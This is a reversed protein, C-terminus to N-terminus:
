ICMLGEVEADALWWRGPRGFDVWGDKLRWWVPESPAQKNGKELLAKGSPADAAHEKSRGWLWADEAPDRPRPFAIFITKDDAPDVTIRTTLTPNPVYSGILRGRTPRRPVHPHDDPPTLKTPSLPPLSYSMSVTDYSNQPKHRLAQPCAIPHSERLSIRKGLPIEIYDNSSQPTSQFAIGVIPIKTDQAPQVHKSAAVDEVLAAQQNSAGAPAALAFRLELLFVLITTVLSQYM